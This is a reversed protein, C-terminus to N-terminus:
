FIRCGDGHRGERHRKRMPLPGWARYPLPRRAALLHLGHEGESGVCAPACRELNIWPIRGDYETTAFGMASPVRHRSFRNM